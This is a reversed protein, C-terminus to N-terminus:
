EYSKAKVDKVELIQGTVADVEVRKWTDPKPHDKPVIKINYHDHAPASAKKDKKGVKKLKAHVITGPIRALAIKRAQEMAIGPPAAAAVGLGLCLSVVAAITKLKM